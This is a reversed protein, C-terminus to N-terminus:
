INFDRDHLHEGYSSAITFATLLTKKLVLENYINYIIM